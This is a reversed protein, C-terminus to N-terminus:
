SNKYFLWYITEHIYYGIKDWISVNYGNNIFWGLIETDCKSIIINYDQDTLSLGSTKWWNLVEIRKNNSTFFSKGIHFDTYDLSHISYKLELGSNKWWELVNIHGYNSADDMASETYELKLGSNKWWELVNIYGMSSLSDLERYFSYKVQLPLGSNRLWELVDIHGCLSLEYIIDCTNMLSIYADYIKNKKKLYELTKINRVMLVYKIYMHTIKINLKNIMAVDSLCYPESVIIKDCVNFPYNYNDDYLKDKVIFTNYCSICIRIVIEKIPTERNYRYGNIFNIYKDIYDLSQFVVHSIIGGIVLQDRELYYMNNFYNNSKLYMIYM